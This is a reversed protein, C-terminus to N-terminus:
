IFKLFMETQFLKLLKAQGQYNSPQLKYMCGSGATCFAPSLGQALQRYFNENKTGKSYDFCM